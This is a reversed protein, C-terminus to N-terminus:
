DERYVHVEFTLTSVCKGKSEKNQAEKKQKNRRIPAKDKEKVAEKRRMKSAGDEEVQEVLIHYLEFHWTYTKHLFDKEWESRTHTHM